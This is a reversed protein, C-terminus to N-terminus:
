KGHNGSEVAKDVHERLRGIFADAALTLPHRPHHIIALQRTMPPSIARAALRGDSIGRSVALSPLITSWESRAVIECIGQISDMEVQLDPSVDRAELHRDLEARLGHRPSPLILRAQQLEAAKVPTENPKRDRATVYVMSEEVLPEVILGLRRPPKNIVAFDIAGQNVLDIFTSSYGDVVVVEVEPYDRAFAILMDPIFSVALSALMGVTIRGSTVGSLKAMHGRALTLSHIVPVVLRYLTRGAVTPVMAKSRREFLKQNLDRELKAIQMSVAPQVVNLRNAARTVSGEEYLAVFYNVQRFDM